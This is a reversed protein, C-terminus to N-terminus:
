EEKTATLTVISKFVWKSLVSALMVVTMSAIFWDIFPNVPFPRPHYIACLIFAIWHSTCYPCTIMEGFFNNRRTVWGRLPRSVKARTITLSITSTAMSLYGIEIIELLM